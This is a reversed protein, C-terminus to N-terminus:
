GQWGEPPTCGKKDKPFPNPLRPSVKKKNKINIGRAKLGAIDDYFISVIATPDKTSPTFTTTQVSHTLQKGFGAGLNQTSNYFCEYELNGICKEGGSYTITTDPSMSDRRVFSREEWVACAIIGKELGKGTKEAYSEGEGAFYFQAVVDDTLRWGPIDYTCHPDLVYGRADSSSAEKGDMASLGDIAPHVLIRRGILNRMELSFPSGKRGEVFTNGDKHYEQIPKNNVLVKLQFLETSVKIM